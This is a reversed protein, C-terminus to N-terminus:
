LGAERLRTLVKKVHKEHDKMNTSFILIDDMYALCFDDLYDFLATNIYKQFPSPGNTLGFLFVKYKYSGYRTRFTTYEESEPDMRIRYFAQRIDIKTFVRAQAIRSLTEKILPLLYRDKRTLANLKRYDVCFRLGRGGPKQM